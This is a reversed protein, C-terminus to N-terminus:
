KKQFTYRVEGEQTFYSESSYNSTSYHNIIDLEGDKNLDEYSIFAPEEFLYDPLSEIAEYLATLISIGVPISILTLKIKDTLTLKKLM